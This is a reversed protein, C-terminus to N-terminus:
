SLVVLAFFYVMEGVVVDVVAEFEECCHTFRLV